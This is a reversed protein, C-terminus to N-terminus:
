VFFLKKYKGVVGTILLVDEDPVKGDILATVGNFVMNAQEYYNKTKNQVDGLGSADYINAVIGTKPDFEVMWHRDADFICGTLSDRKINYHLENVGQLETTEGLITRTTYNKLIANVKKRREDDNKINLSNMLDHLDWSYINYTGDTAYMFRNTDTTLGWGILPFNYTELLVFSLKEDVCDLKLHFMLKNKWTTMLFENKRPIQVIGEGFIKEPLMYETLVKLNDITLHSGKWDRPNFANHENLSKENIDMMLLRMSASPGSTEVFYYTKNGLSSSETICKELGREIKLRELGQTFPARGGEYRSPLHDLAYTKQPKITYIDVQKGSVGQFLNFGKTYKSDIEINLLPLFVFLLLVGLVIGIKSFVRCNHFYARQIRLIFERM